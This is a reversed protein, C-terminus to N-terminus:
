ENEQIFHRYGAYFKNLQETLNRNQNTIAKIHGDTKMFGNNTQKVINDLQEQTQGNYEFVLKKVKDM